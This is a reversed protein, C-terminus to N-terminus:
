GTSPPSRVNGKKIPLFFWHDPIDAATRQLSPPSTTRGSAARRTRRLLPRLLQRIQEDTTKADWLFHGPPNVGIM